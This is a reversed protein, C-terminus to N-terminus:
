GIYPFKYDVHSVMRSDRQPYQNGTHPQHTLLESHSNDFQKSAYYSIANEFRKALFNDKTEFSQM